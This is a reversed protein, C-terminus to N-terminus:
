VAFDRLAAKPPHIRLVSPDRKQYILVCWYITYGFGVWCRQMDRHQGALLIDRFQQALFARVFLRAEHFRPDIV